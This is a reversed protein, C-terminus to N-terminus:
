RMGLAASQYDVLGGDPGREFNELPLDQLPIGADECCWHIYDRVMEDESKGEKGRVCEPTSGDRVFLIVDHEAVIQTYVRELVGGSNFLPTNAPLPGGFFVSVGSGEAFNCNPRSLIWGFFTGMRLGKDKIPLPKGLTFEGLSFNESIYGLTTAPPQQILMKRWSADARLYRRTSTLDRLLDLMTLDIWERPNTPLIGKLDCHNRPVFTSFKSALLPNFTRKSRSNECIPKFFLKEQLSNTKRILSTWLRCVRQASVLLTHMDLEQLILTIIEAPLASAGQVIENAKTM